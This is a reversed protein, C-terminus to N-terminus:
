IKKTRIKLWKELEPFWTNEVDPAIGFGHGGEEYIHLEAPIDNKRLKSYFLVSNEVSVIKDDSAHVLFTSPTFSDINEDASFFHILKESPNEGVLNYMSGKNVVDNRFSIVPWALILFDPRLGLNSEGKQFSTTHHVTATAALHGGASSGWLGIQTPNLNWNKARHRILRIAAQVDQLAVFENETDVNNDVPLRHVLVFVTIGIKNLRNAIYETNQVNLRKYGGGPCIIIGTGNSLEPKYVLLRPASINSYHTVKGEKDLVRTETQHIQNFDPNYPYLLIVTDPQAFGTKFLIWFFLPLLLLKNTM